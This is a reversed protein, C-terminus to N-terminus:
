KRMQQLSFWVGYCFQLMKTASMTVFYHLNQEQYNNCWTKNNNNAVRPQMIM